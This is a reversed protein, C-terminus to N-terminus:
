VARAGREAANVEVFVLDYDRDDHIMADGLSPAATAKHVHLMLRSMM